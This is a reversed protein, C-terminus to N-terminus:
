LGYADNRYEEDANRDQGEAQFGMRIHTYGNHVIDSHLRRVTAVGPKQILRHGIRVNGEEVNFADAIGPKCELYQHTM